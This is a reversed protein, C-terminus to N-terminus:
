ETRRYCVVSHRHNIKFFDRKKDGISYIVGLRRKEISMKKYGDPNPNVMIQAAPAYTVVVVRFLFNKEVKM